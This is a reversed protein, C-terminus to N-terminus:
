INQNVFVIFLSIGIIIFVFSIINLIKVSTNSFNFWRKKSKIRKSNEDFEGNTKLENIEINTIGIEIKNALFSSIQALLNIILAFALLYWCGKLLFTDTSKTIDVIDRVFGITLVLGGSALMIILKDFQELSYDLDKKRETLWNELNNIYLELEKEKEKDM